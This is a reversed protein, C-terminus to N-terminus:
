AACRPHSSCSPLPSNSNVRESPSKQDDDARTSLLRRRGTKSAMSFGNVRNIGPQFQCRETSPPPGPRPISTARAAPLPYRTAPLPAPQHCSLCTASPSLSLIQYLYAYEQVNGYTGAHEQMNRCTGAHEQMSTCAELFRREFRSFDVAKSLASPICSVALGM